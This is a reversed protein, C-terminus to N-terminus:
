KILGLASTVSGSSGTLPGGSSSRARNSITADRGHAAARRPAHGFRERVDALDPRVFVRAWAAKTAATFYRLRPDDAMSAEGGLGYITTLTPCLWSKNKQFVEFLEMSQSKNLSGIGMGRGGNDVGTMEFMYRFLGAMHEFSKQGAAACESLTLKVPVHGVFPTGRRNAKTPRTM